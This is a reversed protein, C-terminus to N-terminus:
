IEKRIENMLDVVGQPLDAYKARALMEDVWKKAVVKDISIKPMHIPKYTDSYAYKGCRQCYPHGEEDPSYEHRCESIPIWFNLEKVPVGNQYLTIVGNPNEIINIQKRNVM